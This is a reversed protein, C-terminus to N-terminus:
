DQGAALRAFEGLGRVSPLNQPLVPLLETEFRITLASWIGAGLVALLFLMGPLSRFLAM